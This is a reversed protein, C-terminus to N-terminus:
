LPSDSQLTHRRSAKSIIDFFNFAFQAIFYPWNVMSKLMSDFGM